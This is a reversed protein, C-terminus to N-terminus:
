FWWYPGDSTRRKMEDLRRFIVHGDMFLVNGGEPRGGSGIHSVQHSESWGGKVGGFVTTLANDTMQNAPVADAALETDASSMYPMAPDNRIQLPAVRDQYALQLLAQPRYWNPKLPAKNATNPYGRDLLLAYGWVSFDPTFNWLVNSDQDTFEPCYCQKRQGGAELYLDRTPIPMDWLWNASNQKMPDVGCPFFGRNTTAYVNFLQGLSRLNNACKVKTASKRAKSLAPLLISILLAIIGIVVLLEVLTFGVRHSKSRDQFSRMVSEQAVIV